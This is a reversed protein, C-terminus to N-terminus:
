KERPVIFFLDKRDAHEIDEWRDIDFSVGYSGSTRLHQIKEAKFYNVLQTFTPNHGFLYVTDYKNDIAYIINLLTDLYAGYINRDIRIDEPNYDLKSALIKATDLARTAHSSIMLDPFLQRERLFDGLLANRMKGKKTLKRQYDYEYDSWDSKGHRTIILKKMHQSYIIEAFICIKENVFVFYILKAGHYFFSNIILHKNLAQRYHGVEANRENQSRDNVYTLEKAKLVECAKFEFM